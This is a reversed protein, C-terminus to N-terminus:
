KTNQKNRAPAFEISCNIKNPSTKHNTKKKCNCKKKFVKKDKSTRKKKKITKANIVISKPAARVRTIKSPETFSQPYPVDLLSPLQM